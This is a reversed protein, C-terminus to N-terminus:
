SVSSTPSAGGQDNTFLSYQHTGGIKRLRRFSALLTEFLPNAYIVYLPRPHALLSRQLNDVLQALGARPLPHFLFVVLPDRPFILEAADGCVSELKGCLGTGAHAINQEAIHHLEPLLEIGLVHQFPYASALLLARGKGSGVDVFTFGTFDIKLENMIEHFLRPEVPQYPSHFLGLLRTRWSVTASCTDVRCEWDFDADGYRQERRDPMSERVFESAIGM